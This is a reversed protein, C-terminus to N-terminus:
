CVIVVVLILAGSAIDLVNTWSLFHKEGTGHRGLLHLERRVAVSAETHRYRGQIASQVAGGDVPQESGAM